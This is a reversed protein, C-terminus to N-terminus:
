VNRRRMVTRGIGVAIKKTLLVTGVTAARCAFFLLIALGALILCAGVLAVGTYVSGGITYGVGVPLCAVSTAAFSAFVSWLTVVLSWLVAYLSFVIALAAIGLPFWIPFGLALLIIEWTCLKKRAEKGRGEERAHKPHTQETHNEKASTEEALIQTAIEDVDGIRAVAEEESLGEEVRDDIIEGYFNLHEEIERESLRSLRIRLQDLFEQKRM